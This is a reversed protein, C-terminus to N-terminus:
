GIERRAFRVLDGRTYRSVNRDPPISGQTQWFAWGGGKHTGHWPEPVSPTHVDYEAIWLRWSGLLRCQPGNGNSVDTYVICRHMPAMMNVDRCFDRAWTGFDEPNLEESYPTDIACILMDEPTMGHDRTITTLTEAQDHASSIAPRIEHYAGRIPVGLKRAGDWNRSFQPDLDLEGGDWSTARFFMFDTGHWPEFNWTGNAGSIDIGEAHALDSM